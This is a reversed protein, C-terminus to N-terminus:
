PAGSVGGGDVRDLVALTEVHPTRPFFNYARFFSLEYRSLLPAMELVQTAPNCSLYVIRQPPSAALRKLVRPHLGSRPPDLIVTASEPFAELAKEAPVGLIAAPAVSNRHCNERLFHATEEDSEVFTVGEGGTCIGITGVGAYLDYRPVDLAIFRRIDTLALEFAPINVQFFSRDSYEFRHGLITEDLVHTGHEELLSTGVAAPTQPNSYFVRLGVIPSGTALVEGHVPTPETVYLAAAVRGARNSRLVLSKLREAAVQAAQLSRCIQRAAENIASSGLLCGDVPLKRRYSGREFFALSLGTDTNTFSFELKNRYGFFDGSVCDFAPLAINGRRQFIERVLAIKWAIEEEEALVQWPSCTLFHAERPAIRLASPEHVEAVVCDLSRRRRRLVRATVVEGPLGGWVHV